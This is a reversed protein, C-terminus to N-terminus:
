TVAILARSPEQEPCSRIKNKSIPIEIYKRSKRYTVGKLFADSELFSGRREEQPKVPRSTAVVGPLAQNETGSHLLPMSRKLKGDAQPSKNGTRSEREARKKQQERRDLLNMTFFAVLNVAVLVVIFLQIRSNGLQHSLWAYVFVTLTILVLFLKITSKMPDDYYRSYLYSIRNTSKRSVKSWGSFSEMLSAEPEITNYIGWFSPDFQFPEDSLVINPNVREHANIRLRQGPIVDTIAMEITIRYKAGIWKRRKRVKMEVEGRVQSVHYKGNTERYDM